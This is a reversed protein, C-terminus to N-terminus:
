AGKQRTANAAKKVNGKVLHDVDVGHDKLKDTNRWTWERLIFTAVEAKNKGYLGKEALQELLQEAAPSIRLLLARSEVRNERPM